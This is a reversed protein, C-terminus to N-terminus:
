EDGALVATGPRGGQEGDEVGALELAGLGDGVEGVDRRGEDSTEGIWEVQRRGGIGLTV